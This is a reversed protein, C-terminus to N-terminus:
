LFHACLQFQNPGHESVFVLGRLLVLLHFRLLTLFHFMRFLLSYVEFLKYHGHPLTVLEGVLVKFV